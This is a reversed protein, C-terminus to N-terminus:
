SPPLKGKPVNLLPLNSGQSLLLELIASKTVPIKQVKFIRYLSWKEEINLKLSVRKKSRGLKNYPPDYKGILYQEMLLSDGDSHFRMFYVRATDMYCSGRVHGRGGFHQAIRRNIDDTKGIYLINGYIDEFKYVYSLM